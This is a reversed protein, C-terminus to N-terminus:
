RRQGTKLAFSAGSGREVVWIDAGDVFDVVGAPVRENGHLKEIAHGQAMANAAAREFHIENEIEADLDGIGKIGSM